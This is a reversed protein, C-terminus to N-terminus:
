LTTFPDKGLQHRHRLETILQSESLDAAWPPHLEFHPEDANRWDGGWVLGLSKGLAGVTAYRPSADLYRGGMFVGIDFALGFNHNSYWPPAYTVIPGPASRGQAYLAAQEAETRTGSIGKITISKEAAGRILAVAYPQVRPHLTAIIGASRSDVGGAETVPVPPVPLTPIDVFSYGFKQSTIATDANVIGTEDCAHTRQWAFTAARTLAGFSGDVPGTDLGAAALFVQWAAVDDGHDGYKLARM